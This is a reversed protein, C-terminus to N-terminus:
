NGENCESRYLLGAGSFDCCAAGTAGRIWGAVEDMREEFQARANSHKMSCEWVILVRWNAEFLDHVNQHDRARNAHLKQNWFPTNSTPMKSLRCGHLHWFCGHVFVALKWRPLVIDPRGSLLNRSSAFRFGRRHLASRVLEEPKTGSSRINTM